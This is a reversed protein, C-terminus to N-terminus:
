KNDLTKIVDDWTDDLKLPETLMFDYIYNILEDYRKQGIRYKEAFTEEDTQFLCAKAIITLISQISGRVLMSGPHDMQALSNVLGIIRNFEDLLASPSSIHKKMTFENRLAYFAKLETNAFNDVDIDPSLPTFFFYNKIDKITDSTPRDPKEVNLDEIKTPITNAIFAGNNSNYCHIGERRNHYIRLLNELSVRTADLYINTSTEGGFNGPISYKGQTYNFLESDADGVKEIDRYLSHESHHKGNEPTGLDMGILHIKNFGM